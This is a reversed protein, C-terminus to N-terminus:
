EIKEAEEQTIDGNAVLLNKIDSRGQDSIMKEIEKVRAADDIITQEATLEGSTKDRMIMKGSVVEPIKLIEDESLLKQFKIKKGPRKIVDGTFREKTLDDYIVQIM